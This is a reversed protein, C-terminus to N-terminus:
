EVAKILMKMLAVRLAEGRITELPFGFVVVKGYRTGASVNTDSYRMLRTGGSAPEIGDPSEVRYINESLENNFVYNGTLTNRADDTSIVSGTNSAHNTMWTYHLKEKAFEIAATDKAEVMDTGVYAGSIILGVGHDTFQTLRAMMEPTFVAFNDREQRFNKVARQEGFLVEAFRYVSPSVTSSEFAARSSSIYSAGLQQYIKGQYHTFDHTNGAIVKGWGQTGSSGWGTNDDDLWPNSRNFNDQYGLFSMEKGDIVGEDEWWAFGAMDGKDFSAPASIRTFGNVLMIPKIKSNFICASLTESALSEGGDNVAAVKIAYRKGYKPLEITAENLVTEIYKTSFGNDEEKIYIRYSTPYATAELSDVTSKWTIKLTKGGSVNMGLAHPPLPQIIANEGNFFRAIGKYIARSVTFRFRPDLSYTMDALNQHSLLELLLSPVDAVAAESYVANRLDRQKWKSNHLTRVDNCIQDQILASMDRSLEKSRGDTFRDGKTSYIALTGIISDNPTVGADTHFALSMDIPVGKNKMFNVWHPRSQYDDNYDNQYKTRSYVSDPIGAAQLTYRTGELFSPVGSTKWTYNEPNVVVVKSVDNSSSKANAIVTASPRRAVMGMGGGLRVADTTVVGKHKSKNTVTIRAEKGEFNFTGLYHWTAGYMKQNVTFKSVGGTHHVEYQVDSVNKTNNAWSVYVSYDGKAPITPVYEVWAGGNPSAPTELATGGKFPNQNPYLMPIFQYGGDKIATWRGHKKIKSKGTSLDNDVIVMERQTDRERPNLVVAGANELMPTLYSVVYPMNGIDEVNQFVRARQWEWRDLKQEYYYGHSHWAAIHRGDLGNKYPEKSNDRTLQQAVATSCLALTLLTILQTKM